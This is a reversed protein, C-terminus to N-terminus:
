KKLIYNNALNGTIVNGELDLQTLTNKGLKYYKPFDSEKEKDLIITDKQSNWNFTGTYTFIDDSKGIYQYELKYTEDTNLTIKVNIGEADAAPIIGTYIGAWDSSNGSNRSTTGCSIFNLALLSIVLVFFSKKM